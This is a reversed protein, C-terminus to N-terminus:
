LVGQKPYKGPITRYFNQIAAIDQEMNGTPYFIPGLGIEKKAYNIFGLIIPVNTAVSIKYFGTKWRNAYSRTGEPAIGLILSDAENLMNAMISTMSTRQKLTTQKRDVPIAGLAKILYSLPFIMVEKKVATRFNATPYSLKFLIGYFADWNSTHPAIVLVAKKCATPHTTNNIKWGLMKIIAMALKSTRNHEQEISKTPLFFIRWVLLVVISITIFGYPNTFFNITSFYILKVYVMLM